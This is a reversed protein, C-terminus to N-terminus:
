FSGLVQKAFYKIKSPTPDVFRFCIKSVGPHMYGDLMNICQKASGAINLESESFKLKWPNPSSTGLGRHTIDTYLVISASSKKRGYEKCKSLFCTTLQKAEPPSVWGFNWSDAFRAALDMIQKGNGGITVPPHPLQYPKPQFAVDKIQYFKGDFTFLKGKWFLLITKVEEELHSVRNTYSALPFGLADHERKYWGAGIGFELRGKSIQDVTCALKALIAPHRFPACTVLTGIRITTTDVALAALVGWSDLRPAKLNRASIFHDDLLVSHYNFAEAAHTIRLISDYDLGGICLEVDWKL